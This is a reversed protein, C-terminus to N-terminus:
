GKQALFTFAKLLTPLVGDYNLIETLYDIAEKMAFQGLGEGPEGLDFYNDKVHKGQEDVVMYQIVNRMFGEMNYAGSIPNSIMLLTNSAIRYGPFVLKIKRKDDDDSAESIRSKQNVSLKKDLIAYNWNPNVLVDQMVIEFIKGFDAISDGVNLLDQLKLDVMFGPQKIQITKTHDNGKYQYEVSENYQNSLLKLAKDKATM